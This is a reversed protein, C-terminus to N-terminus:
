APVVPWVIESEDDPDVRNLLVRYKRWEMLRSIEGDTAIGFDVADQLPDIINTAEAMLRSKESRNKGVREDRSLERRSLNQGDFCWVGDCTFGEPVKSKAIESVSCDVPWMGAADTEACCVIGSADYMVKLSDSKFEKQAAYWDLGTDSCLFLVGGPLEDAGSNDPTYLRFHNFQKMGAGGYVM